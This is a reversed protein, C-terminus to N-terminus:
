IFLKTCTIKLKLSISNLRSSVTKIDLQTKEAIEEKTMCDIYRYKAIRKDEDRLPTEAVIECIESVTFDKSELKMKEDETLKSFFKLRKDNM